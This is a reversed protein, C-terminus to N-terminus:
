FSINECDREVVVDSTEGSTLNIEMSKDYWCRGPIVEGEATKQMPAEGVKDQFLHWAWGVGTKKTYDIYHRFNGSNVDLGAAEATALAEEESVNFECLAPETRCLPIWEHEGMIEGTGAHVKTWIPTSKGPPAFQTFTTHIYRVDYKNGLLYAKQSDLVLNERFYEEGLREILFQDTNKVLWAPAECGSHCVVSLFDYPTPQGTTKLEKLKPIQIKGEVKEMTQDTQMPGEAEEM